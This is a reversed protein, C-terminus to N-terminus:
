KLSITVMCQREGTKNSKKKKKSVCSEGTKNSLFLTKTLIPKPMEVRVILRGNM